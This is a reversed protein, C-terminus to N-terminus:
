AVARFDRSADIVILRADTESRPDVSAIVGYTRNELACERRPTRAALDRWHGYARLFQSYVAVVHGDDTVFFLDPTRGDGVLRRALDDLEPNHTM